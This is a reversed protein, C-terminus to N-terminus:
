VGPYFKCILFIRYTNSSPVLEVDVLPLLSFIDEGQLFSIRRLSKQILSQILHSHGSDGGLCEVRVNFSPSFDM